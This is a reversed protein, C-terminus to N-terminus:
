PLGRGKIPQGTLLSVLHALMLIAVVIAIAQVAVLPVLPPRGIDRPRRERWNALVAIALAGLLIAFTLELSM